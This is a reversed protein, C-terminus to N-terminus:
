KQRNGDFLCLLPLRFDKLYVKKEEEFCGHNWPREAPLMNHLYWSWVNLRILRYRLVIWKYFLFTNCLMYTYGYYVAEHSPIWMEGIDYFIKPGLEKCLLILQFLLVESVNMGQWSDRDCFYLRFQYYQGSTVKGVYLKKGNGLDSDRSFPRRKLALPFLLAATRLPVYYRVLTCVIAVRKIQYGYNKRSCNSFHPFSTFPPFKIVSIIIRTLLLLTSLPWMYYYYWTTLSM